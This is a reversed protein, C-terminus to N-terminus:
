YEGLIQQSNNKDVLEHYVWMTKECKPCYHEAEITFNDSTYVTGSGSKEISQMPISNGDKIFVICRYNQIYAGEHDCGQHGDLHAHDAATMGPPYNSSM